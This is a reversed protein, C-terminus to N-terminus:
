APLQPPRALLMVRWDLVEALMLDAAEEALDGLQTASPDSLAELQNVIQQLREAMAESREALRHFEGQTARAVFSAGFAPFVAALVSALSPFWHQASESAVGPCQPEPGPRHGNEYIQWLQYVLHLFVILLTLAFLAIHTVHLGKAVREHRRKVLRHYAAQGRILPLVVDDKLQLRRSQDLAGKVLGAERVVARFQWSALSAEPAAYAHHAPAQFSRPVRGLPALMRMQRLQEALFRYELWRAHWRREKAFLVLVLIAVIVVLEAIVLYLEHARAFPCAFGVIALTVAIPALSFGLVYGGRHAAGYKDALQDAWIYHEALRGHTFEERKEDALRQDQRPMKFRPTRWEWGFLAVFLTYALGLLSWKPWREEFYPRWPLPRHGEDKQPEDEKVAAEEKGEGPPLLLAQLDDDLHHLPRAQHESCDAPHNIKALLVLAADPRRSDVWVVPLNLRLADAAIAGTGPDRDSEAPKGDWVVIVVDCQRLMMLGAARYARDQVAKDAVGRDTAPVDAAAPCARTGDLELVATAHDLLEDFAAKSSPKTFDDKYTERAFPLIVQLEAGLAMAEEAAIRDAGEALASVIRILPPEPDYCDLKCAKLHVAALSDELGKLAKRVADEVAKYSDTEPEGIKNWRHGTVGVRLVLRAKPPHESGQTM